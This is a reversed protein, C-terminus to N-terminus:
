GSFQIVKFHWLLYIYLFYALTDGGFFGKPHELGM